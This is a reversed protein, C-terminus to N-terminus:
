GMQISRDSSMDYLIIPSLLCTMYPSTANRKARKFPQNDQLNRCDLITSQDLGIWWDAGNVTFYYMQYYGSTTVPGSAIYQGALCGSDM